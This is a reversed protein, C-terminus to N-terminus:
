WKIKRTEKGKYEAIKEIMYDNMKKIEMLTLKKIIYEYQYTEYEYTKSVVKECLNTNGELFHLFNYYIQNQQFKKGNEIEPNM